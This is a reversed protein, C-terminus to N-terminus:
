KPYKPIKTHPLSRLAESYHTITRAGKIYMIIKIGEPKYKWM